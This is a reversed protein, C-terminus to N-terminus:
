EAANERARSERRLRVEAAAADREVILDIAQVRSRPLIPAIVSTNGQAFALLEIAVARAEDIRGPLSLLAMIKGQLARAVFFPTSAQQALRHCTGFTELAQEAHGQLMQLSGHTCHAEPADPLRGLASRLITEAGTSQGAVLRENAQHVERLYTARTADPPDASA